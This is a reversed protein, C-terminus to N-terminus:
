SVSHRPRPLGPIRAAAPDEPWDHKPYRGRLDRRTQAWSGRWYGPLDSTVQLPRGAPSLLRLVVPLGDVLPHSDLGFFEQVPAEVLPPSGAAYSIARHSGSPLLLRAPARRDLEKRLDFPLLSELGRRLSHGDIVPGPGRRVFPVLWKDTAALLEAEDFRLPERSDPAAPRAATSDGATRREAWWRLRGLYEGAGGEDWPLIGFGESSLRLTLAQAVEEIPLLGLATESLIIAGAHRVRRARYSLGRWEIRVDAKVVAALSSEAEAVAIPAGSYVRGSDQGADADVAVIWPSQALLGRAELVRGSALKFSASDPRRGSSRTEQRRGIRDPFASALLPGLLLTPRRARPEVALCRALRRAEAATRSLAADGSSLRELGLELDGGSGAEAFAEGESLLAAAMCAEWGAGLEVGRLALAALRTQTGLAAMRRGFPSVAGDADLAGLESLLELGAEWAAAPPRDLWPLDGRERAGRLWSELVLGSLEARLIEADIRLPLRESEPWARLCIGPALRGARGRRQDARDQSERETVLRNLGTRLHFRTLRALGADLVAGIRPVTLSTEALSTALVIRQPEAAEPALIRRQAELPLSGHLALSPAGADSLARACRGIEAAGPLFVLLDQSGEGRGIEAALKLALDALRREFGPGEAVPTYRTEVPYVRGPVSLLPLGLEAAVRETDLTASMVLLKLDPRLLRAERALALALDAQLSREHFEDFIVLGVGALSPDEQLMRVLIGETMALIRTSRSSRSELRVSYGVLGGVRAGILDAIRQAAAVAAVRRPELLLIRGEIRDLLSPPVLSTKGAGPAAALVLGGREVLRAAIEPLYPEIPLDIPQLETM